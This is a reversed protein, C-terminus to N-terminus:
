GNPNRGPPAFKIKEILKVVNGGDDVYGSIATIAAVVNEYRLTYDAAIEVEATERMSADDGVMSIIKSNLAPWSDYSTGNLSIGALNGGGDASLVLKMPPIQDEDPLGESPAALPMKINFDGEQSVIKFTMIFFILLQFVIDIMPTMQLEIKESEIRGTNRVKM